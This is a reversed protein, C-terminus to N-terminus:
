WGIGPSSIGVSKRSSITRVKIWAEHASVREFVSPMATGACGSDPGYSTIGVQVGGNTLLPGGSDGVCAGKGGTAVWACIETKPDSFGEWLAFCENSKVVTIDVKLLVPSLVVNPPLDVTSGHGIATVIQNDSPVSPNFNLKQLPMTSPVALKVLMIDNMVTKDNYNPHPIEAVVARFESLDDNGNNERGGIYVGNDFAGKCHAATLVFEPHILTGGCVGGGSELNKSIVFSPFENASVPDGGVIEVTGGDLLSSSSAAVCRGFLIVFVISSVNVGRFTM